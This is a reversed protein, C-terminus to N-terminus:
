ARRGEGLDSGQAIVGRLAEYARHVRLKVAGVSTGLVQAAEALTLGEDKVLELASRQEPTLAALQRAVRQALRRTELSTDPQSAPSEADFTEGGLVERQARRFRNLILRRAIVFSWPTVQSGPVFTCRALHMQLFTQQLVDDATARDRVLKSIYGHLRPALADYLVSFASAEGAAYRSMAEDAARNSTAPPQGDAQM